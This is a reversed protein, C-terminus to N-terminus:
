SKLLVLVGSIATMLAVIGLVYSIVFLWSSLPDRLAWRVIVVGVPCAVLGYVPFLWLVDALSRDMGTQALVIEVIMAQLMVIGGFASLGFLAALVYDAPSKTPRKNVEPEPSRYPNESM